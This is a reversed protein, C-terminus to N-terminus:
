RQDVTLFLEQFLSFLIITMIIFLVLSFSGCDVTEPSPLSIHLNDCTLPSNWKYFKTRSWSNGSKACESYFATADNAIVCTGIDSLCSSSGLFAFTNDPCSTCSDSGPTDSYQTNDCENCFYSGTHDTYRGAPCPQCSNEALAM